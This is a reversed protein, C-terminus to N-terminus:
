LREKGEGGFEWGFGLTGLRTINKLPQFGSFIKKIQENGYKM